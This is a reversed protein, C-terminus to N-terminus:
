VVLESGSRAPPQLAMDLMTAFSKPVITPVLHGTRMVTAFRLNRAGRIHGMVSQKSPWPVSQAARFEDAGKWDMALISKLNGIHNCSSGDRLGNYLFVQRGKELLSALVPASPVNSDNRINRAVPGTEDACYWTVDEGVHLATKVDPRNLYDGLVRTIVDFQNADDIGFDYYFLEGAAAKPGTFLWRVTINECFAFSTPEKNEIAEVCQKERISLEQLLNEDIIGEGFLKEGLAAYQLKENYLGNGIVVGQLPVEPATTILEYAINPIYKGAYSEGTVWLPNKSYEPHMKYFGRLAHVFQARMEERTKVYAETATSSYGAGVPNDVAMLHYKKTIRDPNDVLRSDSTMKQPGLNETLLGVMSSAGPGGNLWILLPTDSSDSGVDAEAFYYFLKNKGDPTADSFGAFHKTKPAGYGPLELVRDPQATALCATLGLVTAALLAAM